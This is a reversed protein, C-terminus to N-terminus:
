LGTVICNLKFGLYSNSAPCKKKLTNISKRLAYICFCFFVRYSIYFEFISVSDITFIIIISYFLCFLILPTSNIEIKIQIIKQSIFFGESFM